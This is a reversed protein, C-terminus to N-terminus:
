EENRVEERAQESVSTVPIGFFFRSGEGVRSQVGVYGGHSAVIGKVIALGLGSGNRDGKYVQYFRGFLHPIDAEPVGPGTDRIAVEMCPSRDMVISTQLTIRGGGPTFKKANFLLNCFVQEIRDPDIHARYPAACEGDEHVFEIGNEEIDWRYREVLEKLYLALDMPRKNLEIQGSELRALELLDHFMRQLYLTKEYVIHMYEPKGSPLVGDIMGRIYGQISNVPHALEHSIDTFLRRREENIKTLEGYARELEDHSMKLKQTREEVQRDLSQNLQVLEASTKEARNYASAFRNTVNLSQVILFFLMGIATMDISDIIFNYYLVNNIVCIFFFSMGILALGSGEAKEVFARVVTVVIYTSILVLYTMLFNMTPTYISAPLLLVFLHYACGAWVFLSAPRPLSAEANRIQLVFLLTFQSAALVSMYEIKTNWEWPFSPFFYSLAMQESALTRAAVALCMLTFLLPSKTKRNWLYLSLHFMAMVILIGAGTVDFIMRKQHYREIQEETGLLPTTWLGGKRQVFNSVQITLDLWDQAVAFSVTQPVNRAVMEAKSYGVQGVQLVRQDNVWLAYATAVDPMYLALTKVQDTGKWKEPLMVRLRYTAVGYNSRPEPLSGWSSPVQVTGLSGEAAQAGPNGMVGWEIQWEGQLSAMGDRVFDWGELQLVGNAAQRQTGAQEQLDSHAGSDGSQRLVTAGWPVLLSISCVILIAAWIKRM